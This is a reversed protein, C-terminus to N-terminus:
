PKALLDRAAASFQVKGGDSLHIEFQIKDSVTLGEEIDFLMLHYGGPRLQLTSGADITYRDVRRMKMLGQQHTIQHLEIARVRDAYFGVLEIPKGSVNVIDLYASSVSRGPIPLRFFANNIQLNQLQGNVQPDPTTSQLDVPGTDSKAWVSNITLM